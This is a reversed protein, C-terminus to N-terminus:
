GPFRQHGCGSKLLAGNRNIMRIEHTASADSNTVLEGAAHATVVARRVDMRGDHFRAVAVKIPETQFHLEFADLLHNIFEFQVFAGTYVQRM